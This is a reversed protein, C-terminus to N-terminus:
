LNRIQIIAFPKNINGTARIYIGGGMIERQNVNWRIYYM